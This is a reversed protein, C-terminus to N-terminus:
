YDDWSIKSISACMCDWVLPDYIIEGEEKKKACGDHWSKVEAMRVEWTERDEGLLWKAGKLWEKNEIL